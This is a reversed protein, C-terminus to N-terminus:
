QDVDFLIQDIIDGLLKADKKMLLGNQDCLIVDSGVIDAFFQLCPTPARPLLACGEVILPADAHVKGQRIRLDDFGEVSQFFIYELYTPFQKHDFFQYM